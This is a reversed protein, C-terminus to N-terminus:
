SVANILKTSRFPCQYKHATESDKIDQLLNNLFVIGEDWDGLNSDSNIHGCNGISIREIGLDTGFKESYDTGAFPDNESYVLIGPVSLKKVDSQLFSSLDKNIIGSNLDPPAVLLVCKVINSIVPLSKVVLHCGLSHAILVAKTEVISRELTMYLSKSWTSFDPNDWCEQEIRNFGYLTEWRTQWHFKGSGHLGPVTFIKLVNKDINLGM